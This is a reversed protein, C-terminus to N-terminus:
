GPCCTVPGPPPRGPSAAPNIAAVAAVAAIAAFGTVAPRRFRGLCRPWHQRAAPIDAIAAIAAVAAVAAIAAFGTVAPRRFRGLCRPWHQRAATAANRAVSYGFEVSQWSLDPPPNGVASRSSGRSCTLSIRRQQPMGRSRIGSSSPNGRYTQRPTGSQAAPHDAVVRCPRRRRRRRRRPRRPM